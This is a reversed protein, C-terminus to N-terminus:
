AGPESQLQPQISKLLTGLANALNIETRDFTLSLNMGTYLQLTYLLKSSLDKSLSDVDMEDSTDLAQTIIPETISYVQSFSDTTRQLEM